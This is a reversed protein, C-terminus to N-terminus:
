GLPHHVWSFTEQCEATAIPTSIAATPIEEIPADLATVRGIILLAPTVVGLNAIDTSLRHLTTQILRQGPLTAREIIAVPLSKSVGNDCLKKALEDANSVGMYIVLTQKSPDFGDLDPIEHDVSHGTAFIVSTAAHRYTLPIGYEAAAALATTVGPVVRVEIGKAKLDFLEEGGRGFVFPDGGKLRVVRKGALADESMRDQISQQSMASFGKRKGVFVREAQTPILDLVTEDVLSDHYVADATELALVARLTLLDAAGPGAGVLTVSGEGRLM